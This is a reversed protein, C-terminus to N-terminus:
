IMKNKRLFQVKSYPIPIYRGFLICFIMMDPPWIVVRKYFYTKAPILKVEARCGGFWWAMEPFTSLYSVILKSNKSLLLLKCLDDQRKEISNVKKRRARGPYYLVRKGYRKIVKELIEDCDCSVFFNSCDSRDLTSYVNKIDFLSQRPPDQVWSRISVSATRPDFRKSYNEAVDLIHQKPTLQRIYPLYKERVAAPIREYECDIDKGTFSPYVRTFNNPINDEPFTLLQWTNIIANRVDSNEEKAKEMEKLGIEAIKNEFLDSFGCDMNSNKPWCLILKKSGKDAVRMASVLCKLRNCLGADNYSIVQKM